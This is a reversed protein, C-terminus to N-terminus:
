DFKSLPAGVDALGKGLGALTRFIHSMPRIKKNYETVKEEEDVVKIMRPGPSFLAIQRKIESALSLDSIVSALYPSIRERSSKNSFFGRELEDCVNHLGCFWLQDKDLFIDLLWLLPDGKNDSKDKRLVGLPTTSPDQPDRMYHQRLPPSAVMAVLWDDLPTVQDIMYDFHELARATGELMKRHPKGQDPYDKKTLAVRDSEKSVLDWTVLNTYADVVVNSLVREWFLDHDHVSSIKGSSTLIKEPRHESLELVVEQFYYPDERLSLIHDEAENRRAVVFPHLCDVDFASPVRYPAQEMEQILSPWGPSNELLRNEPPKPQKPISLDALPLDQLIIEICRQLFHMKRQQIEMVQLGQGPQLGIGSMMDLAGDIDFAGSDADWSFMRGYSEQTDQGTLFMTYGSVHPSLLAKTTRGTYTSNADANVFEGPPTRARSRLLLLLNNPKSLDELNLSPLLLHDRFHSAARRQPTAANRILWFDPRHNPPIAPFAATLVKQRQVTSKRHWRNILTDEHRDLINVLARQASFIDHSYQKARTKAQYYSLVQIVPIKSLEDPSAM